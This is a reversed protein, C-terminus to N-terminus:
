HQTITKYIDAGMRKYAELNNNAYKRLEDVKLKNDETVFSKGVIREYIKIQEDIRNPLAWQEAVPLLAFSSPLGRAEVIKNKLEATNNEDKLSELQKIKQIYRAVDPNAKAYEETLSFHRIVEGMLQYLALKTHKDLVEKKEDENLKQYEKNKSVEEKVHEKIGKISAEHLKVYDEFIREKYNKITENVQEKNTEQWDSITGLLGSDTAQIFTNRDGAVLTGLNHYVKTLDTNKNKGKNYVKTLDSVDVVRQVLQLDNVYDELSLRQTAM